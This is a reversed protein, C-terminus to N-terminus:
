PCVDADRKHGNVVGLTDARLGLRLAELGMLDDLLVNGLNVDPGIHRLLFSQQSRQPAEYIVQKAHACGALADILARRVEGASTYLGVTGSERGEAVIWRAGAVVDGEIEDVWQTPAIAKTPNKSGVESLVEFGRDRARSILERKNSLPMDTAGDSVEVCDFGAEAAFTFMAEAQGQLWAVELLTGGTCAKVNAARLRSVKSRITPDLYSSGWGFKWIDVFDSMQELVDQTTSLTCGKDLVHNLGTKRPKPPRKRLTLFSPATEALM